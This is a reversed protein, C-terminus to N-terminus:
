RPRLLNLLATAPVCILVLALSPFAAQPLREDSAFTHATVALTELSFPRLIMTAPLEKMVEVAVLLAATALGTLVLPFHIKTIVFMQKAGLIRAAEDIRKEVKMLATESPLIAVAAFRSQYAILLAIISGGTLTSIPLSVLKNLTTQVFVLLSLIAIASVAGPVAYGSQVFRICVQAVKNGSRLAYAASVGLVVAMIGSVFALIVTGKIAPVISIAPHTEFALWSLHLAPIFLGLVFPLSGLICVVFAYFGRIRVRPINMNHNQSSNTFQRRGRANREVGLVLLAGFLLVIALQAAAAPDGFSSWARVIGVTLTSVGLFDSVGFDALVEMVVLASGAAVSPWILPLIIKLFVRKPDAGLSRSIDWILGGHVEMANRALLYVYPYLTFAFVFGAGFVGSVTPLSFGISSVMKGGPATLSYWSYAAVYGPMALPLILLWSLINRGPFDFRTILWASAVGILAAAMGSIVALQGSEYLFHPLRTSAIHAFYEGNGSLSLTLLALLPLAFLAALFTGFVVPNVLGLLGEIKTDRFVSSNSHAMPSLFLRNHGARVILSESRLKKAPM